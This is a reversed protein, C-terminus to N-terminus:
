GIRSSPFFPIADANGGAIGWRGGAGNFQFDVAAEWDPIHVVVYGGSDGLSFYYSSDFYFRTVFSFFGKRPSSNIFM